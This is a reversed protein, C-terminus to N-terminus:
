NRITYYTVGIIEGVETQTLGLALRKKHVHEGITTPTGQFRKLILLKRLVQVLLLFPLAVIGNTRPLFHFFFARNNSLSAPTELHM